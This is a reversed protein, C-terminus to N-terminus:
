VFSRRAALRRNTTLTAPDYAVALPGKSELLARLTDLLSSIEEKRHRVLLREVDVLVENTRERPLGIDHDTERIRNLNDPEADLPLDGDVKRPVPTPIEEEM